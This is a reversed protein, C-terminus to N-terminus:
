YIYTSCYFNFFYLIIFISKKCSLTVSKWFYCLNQFSQWNIKMLCKCSKSLFYSIFFSFFFVAIVFKKLPQKKSHQADVILLKHDLIYILACVDLIFCKPLPLTIIVEWIMSKSSSSIRRSSLSSYSTYFFFIKLRDQNTHVLNLVLYNEAFFLKPSFQM